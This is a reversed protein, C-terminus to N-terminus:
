AGGFVADGEPPKRGDGYMSIDIGSTKAFRELLRHVSVMDGQGEGIATLAKSTATLIQHGATASLQRSTRAAILASALEGCRAFAQGLASECERLLM